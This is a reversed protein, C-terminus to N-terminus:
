KPGYLSKNLKCVVNGGKSHFGQPLQMYVEKNLDGNLFANNVDLQVLHWGKMTSIALLTKVTTLKAVLSFTNTFDLGEQQTFGKAVLRAKYREVSGNAKYKVRYVWKCGIAKKNSPLCTLTWTNNSVLADIESSMAEQWKPDKVAEHYFRPEPISTIVSCFHAYSFSLLSDDIYNSLPYRTTVLSTGSKSLPDSQSLETSMISNCTYDQLHPPPKTTRSSRRLSPVIDPQVINPEQPLPLSEPAISGPSVHDSAGFPPIISEPMSSDSIAPVDPSLTCDSVNQPDSNPSPVQLSPTLPESFMPDHPIAVNPCIHPLSISTHSSYTPSIFPFVTEHFSVDRSIFIQKTLLNLLKYGKVGFPYGLFVCPISRPSFKSRNHALTSAFCLSGFVKLHHYSPVKEFPTKHDLVVSPLRNIIYVATLVCDGWYCLPINSQFKLARAINLIHQHKREVISNKQPTAVCFHQHVIGMNLMFINLSFSKLM